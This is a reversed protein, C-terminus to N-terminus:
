TTVLVLAPIDLTPVRDLAVAEAWCRVPRASAPLKADMVVGAARLAAIAAAPLPRDPALILGGDRERAVQAGRAQVEPPCLGSTLVVRLAEDDRFGLAMVSGPSRRRARRWLARCGSRCHRAPEDSSCRAYRM